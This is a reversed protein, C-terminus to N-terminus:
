AEPKAQRNLKKDLVLTHVLRDHLAQRRHTNTISLLGLGMTTFSLFKGFSRAIAMKLSLRKGYADTVILGFALKGPTAQLPSALMWPEYLMRLFILIGILLAPRAPIMLRIDIRMLIFLCLAYLIVYIFLDLM